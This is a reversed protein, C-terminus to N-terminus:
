SCRNELIDAFSQKQLKKRMAGTNSNRRLLTAFVQLKIVFLSWWLRKGAFNAFNKLFGIEFFIQWSQKQLNKRMARHENNTMSKDVVLLICLRPSMNKCFDFIFVRPLLFFYKKWNIWKLFDKNKMNTNRWFISLTEDSCDKLHIM